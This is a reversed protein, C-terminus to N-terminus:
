SPGNDIRRRKCVYTSMRVVKNPPYRMQMRLRCWMRRGRDCDFFTDDQRIRTPDGGAVQAARNEVEDVNEMRAKIEVNRPM